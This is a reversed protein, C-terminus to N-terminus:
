RTIPQLIIVLPILHESLCIKLIHGALKGPSGPAGAHGANQLDNVLGFFVNKATQLHNAEQDPLCL